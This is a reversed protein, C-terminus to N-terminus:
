NIKLPKSSSPNELNYSRCTSPSRKSNICFLNVQQSYLSTDLKIDSISKDFHQVPIMLSPPLKPQTFDFPQIYKLCIYSGIVSSALLATAGALILGIRKGIFYMFISFELFKEQSTLAWVYLKSLHAKM